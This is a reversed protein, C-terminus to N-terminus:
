LVPSGPDLGLLVRGATEWRGDQVQFHQAATRVDRWCRELPSSQFIASSGALRHLLDVATVSHEAATLCALRAAARGELSLECGRVAADWVAQVNAYWYARASQVLAEARALGAHAQVQESLRPGFMSEKTLALQRFEEIARRGLGLCVSPAQAIGVLTFFPIKALVCERVARVGEAISIHGTLEEPVFVHDVSLDQTGTARLGTVHWTDIIQVDSPSLFAHILEPGNPGMRPADGDFVPVSASIWDANPAGSNYPWRGTLRYGGDVREARVGFAPAAPILPSGDGLACAFLGNAVGLAVTWGTSGDHRSVEEVVRLAEPLPLDLGGFEKPTYISFLGAGKLLRVFDDPLRRMAEAEAALRRIEDAVPRVPEEASLTEEAPLTATMLM